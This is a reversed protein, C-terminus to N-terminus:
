HVDVGKPLEYSDEKRKEKSKALRSSSRDRARDHSKTHDGIEPNLRHNKDAQPSRQIGIDTIVGSTKTVDNIM